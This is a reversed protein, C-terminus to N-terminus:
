CGQRLIKFFRNKLHKMLDEAIIKYEASHVNGLLYKIISKLSIWANLEDNNIADDFDKKLM